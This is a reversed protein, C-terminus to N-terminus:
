VTWVKDMMYGTLPSMKQCIDVIFKTADNLNELSKPYLANESKVVLGKYRLWEAGEAEKDFGRPVRALAPPDLEVGHKTVSKVANAIAEGGDLLIQQRMRDLQDHVLAWHGAGFAYSDANFIVHVGPSKNPHGGAWFILHVHTHYPTKDKSFRTDRYIRRISGNVKPDARLAPTLQSVAGDLTGVLEIMPKVVVNQYHQKNAEFWERNNNAKLAALFDRFGSDIMIGDAGVGDFMKTKAMLLM